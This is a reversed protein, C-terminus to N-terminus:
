ASMSPTALSISDRTKFRPLAATWEPEYGLRRALGQGTHFHFGRQPDEAVASYEARIVRRLSATDLAASGFNNNSM